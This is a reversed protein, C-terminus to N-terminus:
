TDREIIGTRKKLWQQGWAVDVGFHELGPLVLESIAAQFLRAREVRPLTGLMMTAADPDDPDPTDFLEDEIAADLLLPLHRAVFGLDSDKACHALYAWGMRGHDIEDKLIERITERM